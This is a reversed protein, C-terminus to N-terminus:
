RKKVESLPEFNSLIEMFHFFGKSFKVPGETRSNLDQIMLAKSHNLMIHSVYVM